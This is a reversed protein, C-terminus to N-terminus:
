IEALREGQQKSETVEENVLKLWVPLFALRHKGDSM